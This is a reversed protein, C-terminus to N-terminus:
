FFFLGFNFLRVMNFINLLVKLGKKSKGKIKLWISGFFVFVCNEFLEFNWCCKFHVYEAKELRKLGFVNVMANRNAYFPVTIWWFTFINFIVTESWFFTIDYPIKNNMYRQDNKLIQLCGCKGDAFYHSGNRIWHMFHWASIDVLSM